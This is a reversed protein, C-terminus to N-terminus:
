YKKFLTLIGFEVQQAASIMDKSIVIIEGNEGAIGIINEYWVVGRDNTVCDGSPFTATLQLPWKDPGQDEVILKCSATLDKNHVVIMDGPSADFLYKEKKTLTKQGVAKKIPRNVEGSKETSVLTEEQTEISTGTKTEARTNKIDILFVYLLVGSLVLSLLIAKFILKKKM